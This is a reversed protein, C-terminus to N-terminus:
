YKQYKLNTTNFYPNCYKEYWGDSPNAAIGRESIATSGGHLGWALYNSYQNHRFAQPSDGNNPVPAGKTNFAFGYGGGEQLTYSDAFILLDASRPKFNELETAKHQPGTGNAPFWGFTRSNLGISIEKANTYRDALATIALPNLEKPMNTASPCTASKLSGIYKFEVFRDPWTKGGGSAWGIDMASIMWDNYDNSYMQFGVGLQKMNSLCGASRARERAKNLAPLLMAALIAIIAIVVLLEILTFIQKRKM